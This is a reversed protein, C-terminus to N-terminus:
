EKRLKSGLLPAMVGIFEEDPTFVLRLRGYKETDAIVCYTSDMDGIDVCAEAVTKFNGDYEASTVLRMPTMLRIDKLDFTLMRSRESKAVIKDIDLTTNTLTYEYETKLSLKYLFKNFYYKDLVLVAVAVFFVIRAINSLFIFGWVFLAFMVFSIIGWLFFTKLRERQSPIKEVLCEKYFDM